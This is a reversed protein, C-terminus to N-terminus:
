QCLRVHTTCDDMYIRRSKPHKAQSQTSIEGVDPASSRSLKKVSILSFIAMLIGDDQVRQYIKLRSKNGGKRCHETIIPLVVLLVFKRTIM